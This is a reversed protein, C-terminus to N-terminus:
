RHRRSSTLSPTGRPRQAKMVRIGPGLAREARAAGRFSSAPARCGPHLEERPPRNLARWPPKNIDRDASAAAEASDAAEHCRPRPRLTRGGAGQPQRLGRGPRPLAAPLPLRPSGAQGPSQAPRRGEGLRPWFGSRHACRPGQQCIAGWTDPRGSARAACRARQGGRGRTTELARRARPSCSGAHAPSDCGRM